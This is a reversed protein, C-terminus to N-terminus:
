ERERECVCVSAASDDHGWSCPWDNALQNQWQHGHCHRSRPRRNRPVQVLVLRLARVLQHPQGSAQRVDAPVGLGGRHVAAAPQLLDQVLALLADADEDLVAVVRVEPELDVGGEGEAEGGGAVVGDVDGLADTGSRWWFFDGRYGASGIYKDNNM